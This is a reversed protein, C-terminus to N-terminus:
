GPRRRGSGPWVPTPHPAPPSLLTSTPASAYSTSAWVAVHWCRFCAGEGRPFLPGHAWARVVPFVVPGLRGIQQWTPTLLQEQTRDEVVAPDDSPVYAFLYTLPLQLDTWGIARVEMPTEM